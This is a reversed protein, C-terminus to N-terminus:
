RRAPAPAASRSGPSAARAARPQRRARSSTAPTPSPMSRSTPCRGASAPRTAASPATTTAAIPNGSQYSPQSWNRSIGGGGYKWTTSDAGNASHLATGGVGTVFPQSAPDDVVLKTDSPQLPECYSSGSDGSAAYFSLGAAAALQLEDSEAQLFSPPLSDECLGWSDSVIYTNTSAANNIMQDVM